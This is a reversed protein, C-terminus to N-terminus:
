PLGPRSHLTSSLGHTCCRGADYESEYEEGCLFCM